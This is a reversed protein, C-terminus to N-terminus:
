YNKIDNELMDDDDDRIIHCISFHIFRARLVLGAKANEM